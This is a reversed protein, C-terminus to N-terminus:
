EVEELVPEGEPPVTDSSARHPDIASELIANRKSLHSIARKRLRRERIAVATAGIGWAWSITMSLNIDSLMSYVVNANTDKGAFEHAVGILAEKLIWSFGLVSGGVIAWRVVPAFERAYGGRRLFDITRLLEARSRTDKEPKTTAM